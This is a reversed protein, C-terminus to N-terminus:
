RRVQDVQFRAGFARRLDPLGSNLALLSGCRRRASQDWNPTEFHGASKQRVIVADQLAHAEKM